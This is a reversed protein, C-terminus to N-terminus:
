PEPFFADILEELIVGEETLAYDTDFGVRALRETFVDRFREATETDISFVRVATVSAALERLETPLFTARALYHLQAQSLRVSIKKGSM